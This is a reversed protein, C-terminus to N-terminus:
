MSFAFVRGGKMSTVAVFHESPSFAVNTVFRMRDDTLTDTVAGSRSIVVVSDGNSTAVFLAGDSRFALGDPHGAPIQAFVEVEKTEVAARLVRGTRTEGVYLLGDPGFALGNPYDLDALVTEVDGSVLDLAKISGRLPPDRWPSGSPDSFWVRGDPGIALDNPGECGDSLVYSVDTTGRVWRQIGPASRPTDPRSLAGGSQAIYIEGVSTEALGNPGGGTEVAIRASRGDLNVEYIRGRTLSVILVSGDPGVLPGETLGLGDGILRVDAPM